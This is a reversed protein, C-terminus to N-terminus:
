KEECCSSVRLKRIFILILTEWILMIQLYLWCIQHVFQSRICGSLAVNRETSRPTTDMSGIKRSQPNIKLCWWKWICLGFNQLKRIRWPVRVKGESHCCVWNSLCGRYQHCRVIFRWVSTLSENLLENEERNTEGVQSNSYNSEDNEETNTEGLFKSGLHHHM